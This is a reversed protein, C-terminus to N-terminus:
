RRWLAGDSHCGSFGRRSWRRVVAGAVAIGLRISVSREWGAGRPLGVPSGGVSLWTAISPIAPPKHRAGTASRSRCRGTCAAVRGDELAQVVKGPPPESGRAYIVDRARVPNHPGSAAPSSDYTVPGTTHRRGESPYSSFRCAAARASAALTPASGGSKGGVVAVGAFVAVLAAGRDPRDAPALRRRRGGARRGPAGRSAPAERRRADGLASMTRGGLTGDASRRGRRRRRAAPSVVVPSADRVAAPWPRPAPRERRAGRDVAARRQPVVGGPRPRRQTRPQRARARRPGIRAKRHCLARARTKLPM